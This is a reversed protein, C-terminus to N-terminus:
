EEGDCYDLAEGRMLRREPSRVIGKNSEPYYGSEGLPNDAIVLLVLDESGDNTLQHAEGPQFLFADGTVIVTNGDQHRVTGQGSLVIPLWAMKLRPRESLIFVILVVASVVVDLVFFTAIRNALIEHFCLTM